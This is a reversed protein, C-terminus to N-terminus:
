SSGKKQLWLTKFVFPNGVGKPRFLGGPDCYTTWFFSETGPWSFNRENGCQRQFCHADFLFLTNLFGQGWNLNKLCSPFGAQTKAFGFGPGFGRLIIGKNLGMERWSFTKACLKFLSYNLWKRNNKESFDCGRNGKCNSEGFLIKWCYYPRWLNCVRLSLWGM